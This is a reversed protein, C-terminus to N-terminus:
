DSFTYSFLIPQDGRMVEIQAAKEARLLRVYQRFVDPNRLYRANAAVLIDANRLGLLSYVSGPHIDFLRYLPQASVDRAAYMEIVRIKNTLLDKELASLLQSRPITMEITKIEPPTERIISYKEESDGYFGSSCGGVAMVVALLGVCWRVRLFDRSLRSRANSAIAASKLIRSLAVPVPRVDSQM